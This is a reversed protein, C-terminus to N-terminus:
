EEDESTEEWGEWNDHVKRHEYEFLNAQAVDTTEESVIDDCIECQVVWTLPNFNVAIVYILDSQM